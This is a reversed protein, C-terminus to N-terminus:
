LRLQLFFSIGIFVLAAAAFNYRYKKRSFVAGTCALATAFSTCKLEIPYSKSLSAVINSIAILILLINLITKM